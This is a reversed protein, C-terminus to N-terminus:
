PFDRENRNHIGAQNKEGCPNGKQHPKIKGHALNGPLVHLGKQRHHPNHAQSGNHHEPEPPHIMIDPARHIRRVHQAHGQRGNQGKTGSHHNAHQQLQPHGQAYPKQHKNKLEAGQHAAPTRQPHNRHDPSGKQFHGLLLPVPNHEDTGTHRSLHQGLLNGGALIHVASQATDNVVVRGFLSFKEVTHGNYAAPIVNELRHLPIPNGLNDKGNGGGRGLGLRLNQLQALFGGAPHPHQRSQVLQYVTLHAQGLHLVHGNLVQQASSRHLQIRLRNGFKEGALHHQDGAAAAGDAALQAPLNGPMVGPLQNDQVNVLVIGIVDLLLQQPFVAVGQVEPHLNGGDPFLLPNVLEKVIVTGLHHEMRRGMLVHGEHLFAGGFRHLVVNEAGVMHHPSCLLVACLLEHHNGGVLRHIGGVEHASGLPETLHNELAPLIGLGLEAGHPEAVHQAGIAGHHGQELLLNLLAAGDGDGVPPNDAVKHGDGLRCRQHHFGTGNGLGTLNHHQVHPLRHPNEGQRLVKDAQGAQLGIPINFDLFDAQPGTFLEILLQEHLALM